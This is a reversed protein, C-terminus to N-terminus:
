ACFNNCGHMIPVFAQFSGKEYSLPAFTYVPEEDIKQLEVGKEAAQIIDLFNQKQFTGVVYNVVPYQKKLDDKLREAM